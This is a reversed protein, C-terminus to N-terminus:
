CARNSTDFVPIVDYAEHVDSYIFDLVSKSTSSIDFSRYKNAVADDVVGLTWNTLKSLIDLMLEELTVPESTSFGRLLIESLEESLSLCYIIKSDHEETSELETPLITFYEVYQQYVFKILYKLKTKDINSNKVLRYTIDEIKFPMKFSLENLNMLKLNLHVDYVSESLESLTIMDNNCLYIKPKPKKIDYQLSPFQFELTDIM